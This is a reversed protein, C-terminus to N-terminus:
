TAPECLYGCTGTGPSVPSETGRALRSCSGDAAAWSPFRRRLKPAAPPLRCAPPLRSPRLLPRPGVPLHPPSPAAWSCRAPPPLRRCAQAPGACHPRARASSAAPEIPRLSGPSRTSAHLPLHARAAVPAKAPQLSPCRYRSTGAQVHRLLSRGTPYRVGDAAAAASDLPRPVAQFTRSAPLSCVM